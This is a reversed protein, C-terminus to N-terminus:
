TSQRQFITWQYDHQQQSEGSDGLLDPQLQAPKNRSFWCRICAHLSNVGSRHFSLGHTFVHTFLISQIRLEPSCWNDKQLSTVGGLTRGVKNERLFKFDVLKAFAHLVVLFQISSHSQKQGYIPGSAIESSRIELFKRPSCGGQDQMSAQKYIVDSM